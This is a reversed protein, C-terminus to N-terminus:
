INVEPLVSDYVTFSCVRVGWCCRWFLLRGYGVGGWLGGWQWYTRRVRVWRAGHFVLCRGRGLLSETLVGVDFQSTPCPLAWNELQKKNQTKPKTDTHTHLLFVISTRTHYLCVYTHFTLLNSFRQTKPLNLQPLAVSTSYTDRKSSQDCIQSNMQLKTFHNISGTSMIM